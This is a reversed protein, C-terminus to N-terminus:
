EDELLITDDDGFCEGIQTEIVTLPEDSLCELRHIDGSCILIEKSRSLISEEGNLIVKGVGDVCVWHEQRRTHRQLPIRKEPMITLRRVKVRDTDLLMAYSGWPRSVTTHNALLPSGEKALAEVAEKVRQSSGRRVVLLADATDVIEIDEVDILVIKKRAEAVVLNKRSDIFLPEEEAIVANHKNSDYAVAYLSDFSGLDNWGIDCPIVAIRGSKEMIAHDISISPIREMQAKTPALRGSARLEASVARCADNVAPAHTALEDLFVDARFCFMGSNWLYRGSELYAKATMLDPKERFSLADYGDHEIYGFGTEPYTPDIGFVVLKGKDAFERAKRVAELYHDEKLILHDSPTVFITEAPEIAMAILAIAPATNRGVAEILGFSDDQGLRKLQDLAIFAQDKNAAIAFRDCLPANRRVTSEFLSGDDFLPYYQKPMLKRSIPWM